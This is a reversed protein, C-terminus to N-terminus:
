VAVAVVPAFSPLKGIIKEEKGPKQRINLYNTVNSVGPNDYYSLVMARLDLKRAENLSFEREAFEASIYGNAIQYWGETEGIIEFKEGQLCRDIVDSETTPEKRVNLSDATIVARDMVLERAAMVAEEGTLVYDSSIYGEIGGSTVRHWGDLTELIECASGDMLKGVVTDDSKPNERMNLYGTVKVIGLNNYSDIVKQIDELRKIEEENAAAVIPDLAIAEVEKSEPIIAEETIETHTNSFRDILAKGGFVVGAFVLVCGVAIAAYTAYPPKRKRSRAKNISAMYDVRDKDDGM